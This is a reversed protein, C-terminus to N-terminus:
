PVLLSTPATSEEGSPVATASERASRLIPLSIATGIFAVVGGVIYVGRPGLWAVAPGAAVYSLAMGIHLMSDFAGSVRSRVADPTRRQMIGQEAVLTVGDGVGMTFIAALVLIWWPSLGTAISMASVVAVGVILAPPETRAKLYRGMLSGVISGGGWCAILVGYGFSGTGFLDVLPVDAVMTMGLGVVVALWSLTITRLVRDHRLFRFGARLGRHADQETAGLDAARDESFQGHVTAVLAASVVFSVANSAFVAGSGISSVLLGGLLPGLLIGANRGLSVMGNAWSLDEDGVLNPIAAASSSLFPAEAVASLFAYVLLLWPAKVLAMGLFCAAGALDSAIMVKKRNFRDGLAGAFPSAFGVTGFTVFLAAAVWVASRTRAYITFNLAMYAAASGTVSILRATALRRVPARRASRSVM